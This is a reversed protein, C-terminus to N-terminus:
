ARRVQNQRLSQVVQVVVEAGLLFDDVATEESFSFRVASRAREAPLGMARLVHSPEAAGAQCASGAAALLGCRSLEELLARSDCGLFSLNSTNPLRQSAHGNRYTEALRALIRAEFEDRNRALRTSPLPRRSCAAAAWGMSVIGILNETGGRLGREQHGGRFWPRLSAGSHLVLAGTGALAGLKHGSLALSTAQLEALSLPEKGASQVADLHLAVGLQRLQEGLHPPLSRVGTENNATLLAVMSTEPRLAALIEANELTGDAAPPLRTVKHGLAELRQAAALMSTHSCASLVIHQPVKGAQGVMALQNAESGGSTFIVQESQTGVLEAVAARAQNLERRARQGATHASAPNAWASQCWEQLRARHEAGPPLTANCDFYLEQAQVM